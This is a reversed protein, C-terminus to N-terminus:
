RAFAVVFGDTGTGEVTFFSTEGDLRAGQSAEGGVVVVDHVPDVTIARGRELGTGGLSRVWSCAGSVADMRLAFMDLGGAGVVAEGCGFDIGGHWGTVFLDGRDAAIAFVGGEFTQADSRAWVFDGSPTFRILYPDFDPGVLTAGGTVTASGLLQGGIVVGREASSDGRLVAVANGGVTGSGVFSRSWRVSLDDGDLKVLLAGSAGDGARHELDLTVDGRFTGVVYVDGVDDVAVDHVFVAGEGPLESGFTTCAAVDGAADFRLVLGRPNDVTAGMERDCGLHDLTGRLPGAAVVGDGSPALAEFDTTIGVRAVQIPPSMLTAEYSAVYGNNGGEPALPGGIRGGDGAGIFGANWVEGGVLTVDWGIATDRASSFLARGAAGNTLALNLLVGDSNRPVYTSAGWLFSAGQVSGTAFVSTGDSVLGLIRDRAPSSAGASESAVQAIWRTNGSPVCGSRSCVSGPACDSAEEDVRGDCDDDAGDCTTEAEPVTEGACVLSGDMCARTGAVCEGVDSGCVTGVEAIEEDVSGDCDDDEGNCVEAVPGCDAPVDSPPADTAPADVGGDEAGADLGADPEAGGDGSRLRGTELSCACVIFVMSTWRLWESRM